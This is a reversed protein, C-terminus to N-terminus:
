GVVYWAAEKVGCYCASREYLQMGHYGTGSYGLLVAVKKKPRRSENEVEEQSFNTAYIPTM